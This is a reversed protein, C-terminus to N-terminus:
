IGRASTSQMAMRLFTYYFSEAGRTERAIFAFQAADSERGVKHGMGARQKTRLWVIKAEEIRMLMKALAESGEVVVHMCMVVKERKM